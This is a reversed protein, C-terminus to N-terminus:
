RKRNQLKTGDDTFTLSTKTTAVAIVAQPKTVFMIRTTNSLSETAVAIVAQPKTVSIYDKMMVLELINCCRNGSATKYSEKSFIQENTYGSLTAVAIVAQPKTVM